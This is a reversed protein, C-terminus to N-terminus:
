DVAERFRSMFEPLWAAPDESGLETRLREAFRVTNARSSLVAVCEPMASLDFDVIVSGTERKILFQRSGPLMDERIARFEGATLHLEERYVREDATPTPFFIKTFCQGVLTAGFAAGLVHEPQQTVLLVIANSKRVTLMFDEWMEAFQPNILYARFEDCSLVFRRGDVVTRIRHLLYHAAPEVITLDGLIQTLDFGVMGADLEVADDGGDFAWGLAGGRCWRELRAGAGKSDRWGLFQRLGELSRLERPMRMVAAVARALRGDDEPPLPGHEDLAILAKLWKVLFARAAPTDDLGSLPALGSPAGSRVVLYRGGVARVLLEGGRDKDFFVIAGGAPTISGGVEGSVSGPHPPAARGALYQDFMALLFLLFTTKGSGIRGFIATMGVDDVHPVYDYATAATTRLRLMAPGWRGQKQGRPFADFGALHAFNRSSIAGPRTRWDLNGPLQAFYAAEMGLSEQAVVAGCNALEGRATGARGDLYALSGAYVALSVHHTGMVFEGSALQDQAAALGEIQSLAKDGAATMQNAKLSLKGIADPRALFSFSQSLVLPFPLTLVADLMGPWTTAPYERFGFIAGFRLAGPARIEYARRGFIARDTYIANGLPGSVLPVPLFEGTLILRLAEAIESFVAQKGERLGLRRLGYAELSRAVAGWLDEMEALLEPAVAVGRGRLRSMARALTRGGASGGAPNRPSKVLSLFWTNEYLRDELVRERYTQDLEASFANRFGAVPLSEVRKHRVLHVGITVTDDAINRWLSNLLRAAANREAEAALEHPLGHLAGIVLVSGDFLLVVDPRVHGLYPLYPEASRETRGANGRM